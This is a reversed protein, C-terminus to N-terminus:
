EGIVPPATPPLDGVIESSESEILFRRQHERDQGGGQGAGAAMPAAFSGAGRSAGAAGRMGGAAEEPAAPTVASRPGFRASGGRDPGFGAAGRGVGIGTVGGGAAGAGRPTRDDIRGGGAGPTAPGFGYGPSLGQLPTPNPSQAAAAPGSMPARAAQPPPSVPAARLQAATRAPPPVGAGALATAGAHGAVAGGSAMGASGAGSQAPAPAEVDGHLAQPTTFAPAADLNGNSNAQYVRMAQRAQEAADQRRQAAKEEETTLGPIWDVHQAVWETPDGLFTASQPAPPVPPVNNKATVWYEAQEQVQRAAARATAAADDMWPLMTGTGTAAADAADGERSALIGRIAREVYAKATNGIDDALREWEGSLEQLPESGAGGNINDYIIKHDTDDYNFNTGM